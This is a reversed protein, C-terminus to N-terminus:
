IAEVPDPAPDPAPDPVPDPVPDPIPDVVVVEDAILEKLPNAKWCTRVERAICQLGSTLEAIEKEIEALRGAAKERSAQLTELQTKTRGMQQVADIMSDLPKM